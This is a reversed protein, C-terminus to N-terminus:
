RQPKVTVSFTDRAGKLGYRHEVIDLKTQRIAEFFKLTNARSSTDGSITVNRLSVTLVDINLNTEAACKVFAELVLALKLAISEEGTISLQGSKVDRIRKVEGALKETANTGAAPKKGLMVAAYEQELNRRLRSRYKNQKFLGAQEYLGVALLLLTVSVSLYKLTKQLRLKKGQYPMFDSRFDVTEARELHALAAGYAVAFDVQDPCDALAQPQIGASGLLDIVVAEIGLKKGLQQHDVAGTSDFVRLCRIPEGSALATTTVTQRALLAERDQTPGLLFTRVAAAKQSKSPAISYGRRGSLIGFLTGGQQSDSSSANQRIFRSLCSVDPEITVPDINNSQLCSLLESLIKRQATFVTLESGKQAGSTIQFAIALDTIDMALAEEADFRVTAAIQKPDNLESHVNHQMFLACDLAIAAESFQLARDACGRAILGALTHPNQQEKDQISITFCGHLKKDRGAPSLCVVTAKDKSLYIGLYNQHEM